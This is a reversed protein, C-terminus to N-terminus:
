PPAWRPPPSTPALLLLSLLSSHVHSDLGDTAKLRRTTSSVAQLHGPHDCLPDVVLAAMGWAVLMLGVVLLVLVMWVIGELGGRLVQTDRVYIARKQGNLEFNVERMGDEDVKPLVHWWAVLVGSWWAM